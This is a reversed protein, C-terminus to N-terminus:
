LIELHNEINLMAGTQSYNGFQKHENIYYAMQGLAIGEDNPSVYKQFYLERSSTNLGIITDVLLANQFVGGSFALKKCKSLDSLLFVLEALGNIVKRAIFDKEKNLSLDQLLEKIFEDWEIINNKVNFSYYAKHAYSNRALTELHMVAEGEFSIKSNIGVICAIADLFRGMSCTMLPDPQQLLQQYYTWEVTNFHKRIFAKNDLKHLLSFASLRPEKSMKDGLLIPFYNLHALRNMTGENYSFLESGWIQGDEGYGTGDWIFGLIREKQEFLKNEALVSAFHAKHHQITYVPIALIKAIENGANAVFYNPHKDTLVIEPLQKFLKQFHKFTNAYAEQSEVNSQDGLFQSIYLQGQNLLGFASKLEGGTALITSDINLFPNPLYNPALGRSRRIIIKQGKTTFQIVSDDQPTVINRDYTLVLDAIDFLNELADVDKYIIPSGSLNGSTAILPTNIRKSLIYLLPSNPLMVGLKDLAPAVLNTVIGSGVKENLTCLVIPAINSELAVIEITRLAVDQKITEINPYLVALPKTPRKKHLRLTQISEENTADCILLYGGTNKIAVIKGSKIEHVLTDIISENDHNICSNSSNFLHMPIACDPCSNTQSYYRRDEVNFYEQECSLCMHLKHMTTHPRDYPLNEVISYRPGCQICTTFPYANRKNGIEEIEKKCDECIAFDPTILINPITASGSEKISFDLFQENITEKISSNTIIANTPAKNIIAELLLAAQSPSANVQIEVGNCNNNVWGNLNMDKAIRYIHPRFGVGQVLGNIHISYTPM